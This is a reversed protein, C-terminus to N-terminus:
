DNSGEDTPVAAETVLTSVGMLAKQMLGYALLSLESGVM